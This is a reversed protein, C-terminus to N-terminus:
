GWSLFNLNIDFINPFFSLINRRLLEFATPATTSTTIVTTTPLTTTTTTTPLKTKEATITSQAEKSSKTAANISHHTSAKSIPVLKTTEIKELKKKNFLYLIKNTTPINPVKNKIKTIRSIENEKQSGTSHEYVREPINSTTQLGSSESEAVKGFKYFMPYTTYVSHRTNIPKHTSTSPLTLSNSVTTSEYNIYSSTKRSTNPIINTQFEVTENLNPSISNSNLNPRHDGNLKSTLKALNADDYESISSTNEISQLMTIKNESHKQSTSKNSGYAESNGPLLYYLGNM